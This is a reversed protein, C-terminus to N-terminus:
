CAVEAEHTWLRPRDPQVTEDDFVTNPLPNLKVKQCLVNGVRVCVSVYVQARLPTSRPRQLFRM